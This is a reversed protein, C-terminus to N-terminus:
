EAARWVRWWLERDDRSGYVLQGSDESFRLRGVEDHIPGPVEDLVVQWGASSRAAYALQESDPSFVIRDVELWEAGRVLEPEGLQKRVVSRRGGTVNSEAVRSVPHADRSESGDVAVFAIHAGDPDFVPAQVFDFQPEVEEEGDFGIGFKGELQIKYAIENGDPVFVPCGSAEYDGALPEGDQFVAEAPSGGPGLSTFAGEPMATIAWSKGDASMAMDNGCFFFEGHTKAKKKGREFTVACWSGGDMCVSLVDDGEASFVPAVLSRADRFKSSKRQKWKKGSRELMMLVQDGRDYAGSAEIKAGPQTWYALAEGDPAISVAGIWDEDDIEEGDYLVSWSEKKKSTRSGVRFVVHEGDESFVPANVYDYHEGVEEGIVPHAGEAGQGVFAVRRGDPSWVPRHVVQHPNGNPDTMRPGELSIGDPITALLTEELLLDGVPPTTLLLCSLLDLM